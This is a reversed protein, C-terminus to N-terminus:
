GVEYGFEAADIVTGTWALTTVPDEELLRTLIKYDSTLAQGSDRHITSDSRVITKITFDNADTEKAETCVMLGAILRLDTTDEYEFIDQHASTSSENYTTDDDVTAGDDIEVYNDGAGQPTFDAEATDATPSLMIVKMNGLFDKNRSGTTDLVYIDDFYFEDFTSSPDFYFMIENIYANASEQTDGIALSLVNVDDVRLEYAGATDDIKIKLEIYYWTNIALGLGVTTDLTTTGREVRLDGTARTSIRIQVTGSDHLILLDEGDNWDENKFAFGIITTQKNDVDVIFYANNTGKIARGGYRGTADDIFQSYYTSYKRGIYTKMNTQTTGSGEFGEIWLLAM